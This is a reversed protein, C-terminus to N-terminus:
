DIVATKVHRQRLHGFLFSNWDHIVDAGFSPDPAFPPGLRDGAPDLFDRRNKREFGLDVPFGAGRDAENTVRQDVDDARRHVALRSVSMKARIWVPRQQQEQRAAPKLFHRTQQLNHHRRRFFDPFLQRVALKIQRHRRRDGHIPDFRHNLGGAHRHHIGPVAGIVQHLNGVARDRRGAGHRQFRRQHSQRRDDDVPHLGRSIPQDPDHGVHRM